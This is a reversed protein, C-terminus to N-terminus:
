ALLDGIKNAMRSFGLAFPHLGDPYLRHDHPLLDELLLARAPHRQITERLIARVRQVRRVSHEDLPVGAFDRPGKGDESPKYGPALWVVRGPQAAAVLDLLTHAREGVTEVDADHWAHNGGLGITVLEWRNRKLAWEFAGPEIKIGGVGLNMVPMDWRRMLRHTWNQAPSQVTFGQTISDGIALWRPEPVATAEVVCGDMVAIGAVACTSILPLWLMVDRPANARELGTALRVSVDGDIERLDESATTAWTGDDQKVEAAIGVSVVQHHRLRELRLDIVPSNTRVVVACGSSSRLNALPGIQGACVNYSEEPFRELRASAHERSVRQPAHFQLREDAISIYKAASM